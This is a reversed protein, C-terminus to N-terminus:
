VGYSLMFSVIGVSLSVGFSLDTCRAIVNMDGRRERGSLIFGMVLIIACHVGITVFSGLFISEYINM